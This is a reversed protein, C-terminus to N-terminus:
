LRHLINNYLRPNILRLNYEYMSREQLPYQMTVVQDSSYQLNGRIEHSFTTFDLHNYVPEDIRISTTAISSDILALRHRGNDNSYIFDGTFITAKIIQQLDEDNADHVTLLYDTPSALEFQGCTNGLFIPADFESIIFVSLFGTNSYDIGAEFNSKILTRTSSRVLPKEPEPIRIAFHINASINIVMANMIDVSPQGHLFFDHYSLIENKNFWLTYKNPAKLQDGKLTLSGGNKALFFQRNHTLQYPKLTYEAADNGGGWEPTLLYSIGSNTQAAANVPLMEINIEDVMLYRHYKIETELDPFLKILGDKSLAFSFYISGDKAQKTAQVSHLMRRARKTYYDALGNQPLSLEIAAQEVNGFVPAVTKLAQDEM